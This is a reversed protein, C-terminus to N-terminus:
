KWFKLIMRGIAMFLIGGIVGTMCGYNLWEPVHVSVRAAAMGLFSMWGILGVICAIAGLGYMMKGVTADMKFGGFFKKRGSCEDV